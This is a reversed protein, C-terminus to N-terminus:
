RSVGNLNLIVQIRVSLRFKNRFAGKLMKVEYIEFNELKCQMM